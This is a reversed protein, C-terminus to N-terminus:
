YWTGQRVEIFAYNLGISVVWPMRIFGHDDANDDLYHVFLQEDRKYFNESYLFELTDKSIQQWIPINPDIKKRVEFAEQEDCFDEIISNYTKEKFLFVENFPNGVKSITFCFDKWYQEHSGFRVLDPSAVSPFLTAVLSDLQKFTKNAISAKRLSDPNIVRCMSVGAVLKEWRGMRKDTLVDYCIEFVNRIKNPLDIKIFIVDDILFAKKNDDKLSRLLKNLAKKKKTTLWIKELQSSDYIEM